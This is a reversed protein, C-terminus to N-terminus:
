EVTKLSEVMDVKKLKYHAAINVIISFVVTLAAALGYAYPPATRGFMVLDVEVTLVMWSHLLRGMVLGMLIGFLTLFINERYVYATTERDTFGLVKLTALERTRETININTLNYLVVFALAAAALIIIVVAYDIAEMSNTFTDRITAIYSYATVADMAMLDNSVRSSEQDTADKYELFITNIEPAEQFLQEYMGESLYVNHRVYNEVIDRVVAEYREDDKTITISDGVQVELLESLKETIIVGDEPLSVPESDLRHRLDIFQTFTDMDDIAYLSVSYALGTTSTDVTISSTDLWRAVGPEANLYDEVTQLDESEAEPDVGITADYLSIEDFQRDLISFISDHLGFGTVILATCGGIGIVTMWFRRKYRFLNRMTVKWTFSLRSWIPTIRELLVRKGPKPARPRMLNAPTDVLTSLCAWLGAGTTCVVAALVALAFMLVQPKYELAPIDYMINFANAIVWPFLTGGILLGLLGGFFSAFFAYGIYKKAIAWRSFGLAKLSGIQTRQDEVMRTMTTLCALAAVLFFIIPFISALNGVREADQSYSVFGVNTNRGLVYWECDDVKDLEAQADDLKQQADAIEEDAEAKGDEYEVLGDAYEAEGDQLEVLADDLEKQGDVKADALEQQGDEYEKWGDELEREGDEIEIRADELKQKGDELEKKGDELEQRADDLEKRADMLEAWGDDLEKKADALEAKSDDLTIRADRLEEWGDDLEKKADELTGRNEELEARGDELEAWGDDLEKRADELTGRNEELEAKGDELEAWGDDLEKRADELTGRNEDLEAKGENLEAWGDDLEKRADALTARGEELTPTQANLEAWGDDLQQRAASLTEWSADLEAKGANLEAWGADLQTRSAALTARGEELTPTQAELEAWGEDLQTRSAELTARGEEMAPVGAELEAWGADLEARGADLQAKFGDLQEKGAELQAEAQQVGMCAAVLPQLQALQAQMAELQAAKVPDYQVALEAQLQAVQSALGLVQEETVNAARLAADKGARYVDLQAKSEDYTQQLQAYLAANTEYEAEGAELQAKGADYAQQGEQLQALGAAYEAEGAELQAKGANYAQEGAQFEALGAAYEAEGADLQAKGDLYEQEGAQYQALGDQYQQEADQLQALADQYAKEGVQFEALGDAYEQEGDELEKQGDALDKEGQQFQALGDAYEKEGDELEKQGDALDKEGQQFQELGDAYEKEGDELETQGDALDKEGQQFEALGDAYEAEADQLKKLGDQYEQEGDLYKQYGDDYEAKGDQWTALADAYDQEGQLYDQLGDEYKQENEEYEVLGDAYEQKGDALEQEGDLLEQYADALEQEADAIETRYTEQGEEYDKWGDDLEQRADLLEQWADALEQEAEAKKDEFEARADDLEKQADGKVSETRLEARVDALNELSDILDDLKDEYADSYSDMEAMGHFTFYASTYVDMDFNEPPIYLFGDISGGGLSSTGRDTHVYLPSEAVGVVTYELRTLDGESDEDLVLSIKDGIGIGLQVLLLSETICEDPAEPLRGETVDLFNLKQPLSRVSVITDGCIADINWIGEVTAIDDQEELAKLDEDTIGLTALVYGDMLCTRDYYNDATFEMDPATARLGALFAVALASLVLISLFRSFTNRVERVADTTLRNKRRRM